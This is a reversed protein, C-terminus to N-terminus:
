RPNASSSGGLTTAPNRTISRPMSTRSRFAITRLRLSGRVIRLRSSHSTNEDHHNKEPPIVQEETGGCGGGRCHSGASRRCRCKRQCENQCWIGNEAHSDDKPDGGKDILPHGCSRRHLQLHQGRLHQPERGYCHCGSERWPLPVAVQLFEDTRPDPLTPDPCFIGSDCGARM